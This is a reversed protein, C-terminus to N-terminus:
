GTDNLLAVTSSSLVLLRQILVTMQEALLDLLVNVGSLLLTALGSLFASVLEAHVNGLDLLNGLLLSKLALGGSLLELELDVSLKVLGRLVALTM